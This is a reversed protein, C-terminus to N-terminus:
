FHGRRSWVFYNDPLIEVLPLVESLKLKGNAVGPMALHVEEYQNTKLLMMRLSDEVLSLTALESYHLKTQLAGIAQGKYVGHIFNFTHPNVTGIRSISRGFWDDCGLYSDRVDKAIGAGMVLGGANNIVGNATFVLLRSTTPERFQNLMNGYVRKM